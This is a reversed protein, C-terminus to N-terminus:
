MGLKRALTAFEELPFPPRAYPIARTFGSQQWQALLPLPDRMLEEWPAHVSLDFDTRDRGREHLGADLEKLLAPFREQYKWQLNLGNAYRGALRAMRPGSAGVILRPPPNQAPAAIANTLQYYQGQFTVPQGTWLARIIQVAEALREVREGPSGQEIGFQTQEYALGGAGIGLESRGGSIEHLTATVKALRGPHRNTNNAVLTGLQISQTAEALAALTSWCELVSEYPDSWSVYHDWVWVSDFGLADLHQAAARVATYTTGFTVLCIGIPFM